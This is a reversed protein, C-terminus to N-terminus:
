TAVLLQTAAAIAEQSGSIALVDGAQLPAHADPLTGVGDHIIALVTAGTTGRVALEALSRGIATGNVPIEVREWNAIAALSETGAAHPDPTRHPHHSELPASVQAALMEVVLQSVARVHGQLDRATRWFAVGLVLVAIGLAILATYRPLFPQTLAVLPLGAVVVGALQMSALLMRRPAMGLDVTDPAGPPVIATALHAALGRTARLIGACLPIALAGAVAVVVIRAASRQIDLTDALWLTLRDFGVSVAIVLTAAAIIDLVLWGVYSRVVSSTERKSRLREIWGDYLAVFTQLPKPLKADIVQTARTSARILWPTTLTTIASVAVAVPYLQSGVAGLTLGVGAIIFSFEGIQALSMGAAVSTRTGTGVLFAGISVSVIKGVIVVVSLALVVAWHELIMAPDIMIGVSVFFVAAFVDRVPHVLTEIQRAEGSEAVLVGAVFAGLAVSYGAEHALLSVGFCIAVAAIVTTEPRGIRVVARMVRPIVFLGGVVLAVLFGVLKGITMALEAASLGAGSSAGTLIAILMVAILDEVILIAVVLERLKGHIGQEDFAKAIITTSSIAIVAGCFISELMTWGFAQATAFGLLMMASCQILATIGATPAARFLKALSFELGLGFMLMIVGLESLTHVIKVDAFVPIPIHPGVILGALIYGLVVPQRLKTFVYTTIAALGLVITLAVLFETAHM